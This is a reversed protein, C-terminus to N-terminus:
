VDFFVTERAGQMHVNFTYVSGKKQAILTERRDAPVSLLIEDKANLEEEDSFYIRTYLHLLAGRMFIIVSLFPAEDAIPEPKSVQFIFRNKADTGTGFRGFCQRHKDNQWVEIMADEVLQDNGDFVQGVVTITNQKDFSDRIDGDFWSSFDYSYQEPTLGYAFFPGITQSPTQPKREM